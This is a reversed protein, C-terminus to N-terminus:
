LRGPITICFPMFSSYISPIKKDGIELTDKEPDVILTGNGQYSDRITYLIYIKGDALFGGDVSYLQKKQSLVNIDIDTWQDTIISYKALFGGGGYSYTMQEKGAIVYVHNEIAAMMHTRCGIRMSRKRLWLDKKIDYAFMEDSLWSDTLRGGSVYLVEGQSCAASVTARTPIKECSKWDNSCINYAYVEDTADNQDLDYPHSLSDKDFIGGILFIEGNSCVITSYFLPNKPMGKLELWTDTTADYRKTFNQHGEAYTGFVFLFNNVQTAIASEPIIRSALSLKRNKELSPFNLFRLNVYRGPVPRQSMMHNEELILLVGPKGRPRNLYGDYLPQANVNVFYSNTEKVIKLCDENETIIEESFVETTEEQPLLGFRVNKLIEYIVSKDMVDNHKIWMKAADFVQMENMGTQLNDSALVTQLVNQSVEKFQKTEKVSVFNKMLYDEVASKVEMFSFKDALTLLTLCNDITVHEKMWDKCENVIQLNEDEMQLMNATHVVDSINVDSLKLKTTYICDIVEKLGAFSVKQMIITDQKSEQFCGSFMVRFYPSAGALIVRHASLQQGEAQLTVDCLVGEQQLSAVGSLVQQARGM